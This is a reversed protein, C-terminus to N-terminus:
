VCREHLGDTPAANGGGCCGASAPGAGRAPGGAPRHRQVQRRQPQLGARRSLGRPVLAAAAARADPQRCQLETTGLLVVNGPGTVSVAFGEASFRCSLTATAMFGYGLVQVWEPVNFYGRSPNVSEIIPTAVRRLGLRNDTLHGPTLAVELAEGECSASTFSVPQTICKVASESVWTVNAQTGGAFQCVSNPALALGEGQLTIETGGAVDAVPPEIATLAYLLLTVILPQGAVLTLIYLRRLGPDQAMAYVVEPSGNRSKLAVRGYLELSTAQVKCVVSAARPPRVIVFVASLLADAAM